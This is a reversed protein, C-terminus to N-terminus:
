WDDGSRTECSIPLTLDLTSTTDFRLVMIGDHEDASRVMDTGHRVFTPGQWREWGLRQYFGHRETSLAGLEFEAALLQGVRHMVMAGLGEGQRLPTTAVGEVYGARFPRGDVELDRAVVAAHALLAGDTAVVHWGGLTHHWDDDSFDGDFADMLLSRIEARSEHSVAVSRVIRVQVVSSV